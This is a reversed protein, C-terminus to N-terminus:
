ATRPQNEFRALVQLNFVVASRRVFIFRKVPRIEMVIGQVAPSL